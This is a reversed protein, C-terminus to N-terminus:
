YIKIQYEIATTLFNNEDPYLNRDKIWTLDSYLTSINEKSKQEFALMARKVEKRIESLEMYTGGLVVEDGRKLLEFNDRICQVFIVVHFLHIGPVRCGSKQSAATTDGPLIWLARPAPCDKDVAEKTAEILTHKPMFFSKDTFYKKLAHDNRLFFLLPELYPVDNVM